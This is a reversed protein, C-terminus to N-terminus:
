AAGGQIVLEYRVGDPEAHEMITWGLERLREIAAAFAASDARCGTSMEIAHAIEHMTLPESYYLTGLIEMPLDVQHLSTVNTM